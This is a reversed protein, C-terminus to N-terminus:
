AARLDLRAVHGSELAVYLAGDEGFALGHPESTGSPLAYERM